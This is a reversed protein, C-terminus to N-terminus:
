NEWPTKLYRVIPMIENDTKFANIQGGFREDIVTFAIPIATKGSVYEVIELGKEIFALTTEGALNANNILGTVKLRSAEEVARITDIIGDPGSTYPRGINIVFLFEYNQDKLDHYYQGLVVAGDRDGGVDVILRRDREHIAAPLRGTVIPLDSLAIREEPAIVDIGKQELERRLDRTRFYPNIVDLDGLGVKAHTDRERFAMNLAIETKGSGFHGTIITIRARKDVTKM